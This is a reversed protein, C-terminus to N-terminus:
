WMQQKKVQVDDNNTSQHSIDMANIRLRAVIRYIKKDRTGERWEDVDHYWKLVRSLCWLSLSLSFSITTTFMCHIWKSPFKNTRYRYGIVDDIKVLVITRRKIKLITGWGFSARQLHYPMAGNQKMPLEHGSPHKFVISFSWPSPLLHQTEFFLYQQQAGFNTQIIIRSWARFQRIDVQVLSVQTKKQRWEKKSLYFWGLNLRFIAINQKEIILFNIRKM